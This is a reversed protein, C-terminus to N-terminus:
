RLNAAPVRLVKAVAKIVDNPAARDGTVYRSFLTHEVGIKKAIHIQTLGSEGIAIKLRTIKAM